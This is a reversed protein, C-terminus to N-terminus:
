LYYTAKVKTNADREIWKTHKEGKKRRQAKGKHKETETDTSGIMEQPESRAPKADM